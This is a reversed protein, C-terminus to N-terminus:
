PKNAWQNMLESTNLEYSYSKCAISIKVYIDLM